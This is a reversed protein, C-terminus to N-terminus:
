YSPVISEEFKFNPNWSNNNKWQREAEREAEDKSTAYVFVPTSMRTGNNTYWVTVTYRIREPGPSSSSSPPSINQGSSPHVQLPEFDMAGREKLFNYAALQGRDYTISTATRGQGDRLNINAGKKLLVDIM